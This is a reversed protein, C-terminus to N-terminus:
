WFRGAEAAGVFSHRGVSGAERGNGRTGGAELGRRRDVGRECSDRTETAALQM